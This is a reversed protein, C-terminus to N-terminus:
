QPPSLKQRAILPSPAKIDHTLAAPNAAAAFDRPFKRQLQNFLNQLSENPLKEANSVLESVKEDQSFFNNSTCIICNNRSEETPNAYLGGNKLVMGKEVCLELNQIRTDGSKGCKFGMEFLKNQIFAAEEATEPYFVLTENECLEKTIKAMNKQM